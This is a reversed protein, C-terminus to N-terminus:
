PCLREYVWGGDGQKTQAPDIVEGPRPRRFVIRNHLRDSQGHWFEVSTPRVLYGGRCVPQSANFMCVVYLLFIAFGALKGFM